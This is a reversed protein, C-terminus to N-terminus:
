GRSGGPLPRARVEVLDSIPRRAGPYTRRQRLGEGRANDQRLGCVSGRVTREEGLGQM